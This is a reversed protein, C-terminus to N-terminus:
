LESANLLDCRKTVANCLRIEDIYPMELYDCGRDAAGRMIEDTIVGAMITCSINHSAVVLIEPLVEPEELSEAPPIEPELLAEPIITLEIDSHGNNHFKQFTIALAFGVMLIGLLTVLLLGKNKRVWKSVKGKEKAM